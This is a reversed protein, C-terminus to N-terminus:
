KESVFNKLTRLNRINYYDSDAGPTESPKITVHRLSRHSDQRTAPVLINRIM